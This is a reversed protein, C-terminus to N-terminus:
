HFLCNCSPKSNISHIEDPMTEQREGLTEGRERTEMGIQRSVMDTRLQRLQPDNMLRRMMQERTVVDRGVSGIERQIRAEQGQGFIGGILNNLGALGGGETRQIIDTIKEVGERMRGVNIQDVAKAFTSAGSAIDLFGQKAAEQNKRLKGEFWDIVQGGLSLVSSVAAGWPGPITAAISGLGGMAEGTTAFGTTLAGTPGVWQKVMGFATSATAAWYKVPAAAANMAFGIKAV